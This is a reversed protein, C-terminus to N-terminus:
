SSWNLNVISFSKTEILLLNNINPLKIYYLNEKKFLM